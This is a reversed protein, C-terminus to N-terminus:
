SPTKRSASKEVPKAVEFRGFVSKAVSTPRYDCYHGNEKYRVKSHLPTKILM